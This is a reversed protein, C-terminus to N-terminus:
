WCGDPFAEGGEMARLTADDPEEEGLTKSMVAIFEDVAALVSKAHEDRPNALFPKRMRRRQQKVEDLLLKRQYRLREREDDIEIRWHEAKDRDNCARCFGNRETAWGSGCKPCLVGTVPEYAVTVGEAALDDLARLVDAHSAKLARAIARVAEPAHTM